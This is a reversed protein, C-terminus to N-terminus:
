SGSAEETEEKFILANIELYLERPSPIYNISYTTDSSEFIFEGYGLLRGGRSSRFTMDKLDEVPLTIVRSIILLESTLLIRKNTFVFFRNLWAICTLIFEVFLIGVLLWITLEVAGVGRIIPNVAVAVFLGGMAAVASPILIAPHRRVSIIQREHPLLYKNVSAPVPDTNPVLRM